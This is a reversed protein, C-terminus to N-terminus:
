KPTTGSHERAEGQPGGQTRPRNGNGGRSPDDPAGPQGLDGLGRVRDQDGNRGTRLQLSRTM